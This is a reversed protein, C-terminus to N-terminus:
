VINWTAFNLKDWLKKENKGAWEKDVVITRVRGNGVWLSCYFEDYKGLRNSKLYLFGFSKRFNTFKELFSNFVDIIKNILLNKVTKSTSILPVMDLQINITKDIIEKTIEVSEEKFKMKSFYIHIIRLHFYLRFFINCETQMQVYFSKYKIKFSNKIDIIISTIKRYIPLKSCYGCAKFHDPLEYDINIRSVDGDTVL